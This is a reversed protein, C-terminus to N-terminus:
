HCGYISFFDNVRDVRKKEEKKTLRRARRLKWDSELSSVKGEKEEEEKEDSEGAHDNEEKTVNIASFFNRSVCFSLHSISKGRERERERM